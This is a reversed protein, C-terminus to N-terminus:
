STIPPLLQRDRRIAIVVLVVGIFLGLYLGLHVYWMTNFLRVRDPTLLQPIDRFIFDFPPLLPLAAYHGVIGLWLALTFSWGIPKSTQQLLKSYPLAPCGPRARNAVLVILGALAGALFGVRGALWAVRLTFGRGTEIGKGVSFYEPSISAAIADVAAAFVAGLCGALLLFGLQKLRPHM